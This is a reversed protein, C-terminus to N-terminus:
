ELIRLEVRRNQARGDDTANSAIPKSEGFGVVTLRSHAIGGRALYDAVSHARRQSLKQNYADSGIADTHGEVSIRIDPESKLTAIAEDLIPRADARINSKDFDFNVGRLVIRRRVPPPPPPAPPPPPPAQAVREEPLFVHTYALGGSVWKRQSDGSEPEATMYAVDYRGFVGLSNGRSIEFNLGTGINYGPGDDKIPRSLDMYWGGQGQVFFEVPDGIVSLKPGGTGAFVVGIDDSGGPGRCCGEETGFFSFQPNALLSLALNDTLYFRYGGDFGATGGVGEVTHSYDKLPVAVGVNAGIEPGDARAGTSLVCMGLAIASISALIGRKM